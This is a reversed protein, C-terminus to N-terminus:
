LSDLSLTPLILHLCWIILAEHHRSFKSIDYLSLLILFMHNSVYILLLILNTSIFNLVTFILVFSVFYSLTIPPYKVFCLLVLCNFSISFM